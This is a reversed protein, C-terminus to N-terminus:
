WNQLFRALIKKSGTVKQELAKVGRTTPPLKFGQEQYGPRTGLPGGRQSHQGYDMGGKDQKAVKYLERNKL